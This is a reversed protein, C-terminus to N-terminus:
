LDYLIIIVDAYRFMNRDRLPIDKYLAIVLWYGFPTGTRSGSQTLALVWSLQFYPSTTFHLCPWYLVDLLYQSVASPYAPEVGARRVQYLLRRCSDIFMSQGSASGGTARLLCSWFCLFYHQSSMGVANHIYVSIMTAPSNYRKLSYYLPLVCGYSFISDLNFYTAINPFCSHTLNLNSGQCDWMLCYMPLPFGTM